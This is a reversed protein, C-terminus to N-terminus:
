LIRMSSRAVLEAHDVPPYICRSSDFTLHVCRFFCAVSQPDLKEPLLRIGQLFELGKKPDRNFHDAGIMLRRKIYKQHQVFEVWCSPDKYNECKLTWFPVYEQNEAVMVGVPTGPLVGPAASDVRNAMSHIVALLGELALVHMASLPCNVPFASKTLLNGLDEFTNSLTIDCDFNAYMEPMFTSQRCFDVLAEMAVEQQQYSAGSRGQALRIVVFSFFAELQLKISERLNHYLNLVIGCVLSLVLPNESLGMQMLNRFLEDQVLALLKPHHGFSEGGLESSSNILMLAFHPVDEDSALFSQGPGLPDGVNLLSCLFNFIDVMCPVGYPEIAIPQDTTMAGKYDATGEEKESNGDRTVPQPPRKATLGEGATYGSIPIGKETGTENGEPESMRSSGNGTVNDDLDPSATL